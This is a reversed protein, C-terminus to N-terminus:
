HDDRFLPGSSRLQAAETSDPTSPPRPTKPSFFGVDWMAHLMAPESLLRQMLKIVDSAALKNGNVHDDLVAQAEAVRECIEFLPRSIKNM